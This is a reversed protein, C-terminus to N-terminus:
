GRLLNRRDIWTMIIHAMMMLCAFLGVGFWSCILLFFFFFESGGVGFQSAFESGSSCVGLEVCGYGWGSIM